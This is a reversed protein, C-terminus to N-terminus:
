RAPAVALLRLIGSEIERATKDWTFRSAFVRNLNGAKERLESNELLELVKEAFAQFDNEAVFFVGGSNFVVNMPKIDYCIVPLGCAMAEAVAIGFGERHSPFIFVKAKRMLEVQKERAVVGLYVIKDQLSKERIREQWVSLIPTPHGVVYLKANRRNSVHSWVEIIDFVGKEPSIRMVSVADITKDRSAECSFFIEDVGPYVVVVKEPPIGMDLLDQKSAESVTFIRAAKFLANRAIARDVSAFLSGIFSRGEARMDRFISAFSYGRYPWHHFVLFLKRGTLKSVIFAAMDNVWGVRFSIVASINERKVIRLSEVVLKLLLIYYFLRRASRRSFRTYDGVSLEIGFGLKQTTLCTPALAKFRRVCEFGLKVGGLALSEAKEWLAFLVLCKGYPPLRSM